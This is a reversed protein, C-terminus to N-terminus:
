KLSPDDVKAWKCWGQSPIPRIPAIPRREISSSWQFVLSAAAFTGAFALFTNRKWNPPNCWWGGAPSWVYRPYEYRPTGGM